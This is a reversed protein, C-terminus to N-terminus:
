IALVEDKNHFKGHGRGTMRGFSMPCGEASAQRTVSKQAPGPVERGAADAGSASAADGVRGGVVFNMM